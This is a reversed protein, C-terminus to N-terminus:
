AHRLEPAIMALRTRQPGGGMKRKKLQLCGFDRDRGELGKQESVEIGDAGVEGRERSSERM